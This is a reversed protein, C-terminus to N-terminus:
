APLANLEINQLDEIKTWITKYKEFLMDDNIHFSMLKNNKNKDKDRDKDKVYGIVKPLTLVLSTVVDSYGILCKSNNKMEISKSIVINNVDVDWIKIPKVKVLKTKGFRLRLISDFFNKENNKLQNIRSKELFVNYYYIKIIKRSLVFSLISQLFIVVNKLCRTEIM